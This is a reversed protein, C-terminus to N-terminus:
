EELDMRGVFRYPKFGYQEFLRLRALTNTTPLAITLKLSRMWEKFMQFGVQMIENEEVDKELELIVAVFGLAGYQEPYAFLHAVIKSNKDVAALMLIGKAGQTFAGYAVNGLWNPDVSDVGYRDLFGQARSVYAPFIQKSLPDDKSLAFVFYEGAAMRPAYSDQGNVRPTPEVPIFDPLRLEPM